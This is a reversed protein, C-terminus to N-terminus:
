GFPFVDDHDPQWIPVEVTSKQSKIFFFFFSYGLKETSKLRDCAANRIEKNVVMQRNLAPLANGRTRRCQCSERKRRNGYVRNTSVWRAMSLVVVNTRNRKKGRLSSEDDGHVVVIGGERDPNKYIDNIDNNANGNTRLMFICFMVSLTGSALVYRRPPWM